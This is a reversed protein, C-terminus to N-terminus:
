DIPLRCLTCVSDCYLFETLWNASPNSILDELPKEQEVKKITCFSNKECNHSKSYGGARWRSRSWISLFIFTGRNTQRANKQTQYLSPRVIHLSSLCDRSCLALMHQCAAGISQKKDLKLGSLLCLLWMMLWSIGKVTDGETVYLKVEQLICRLFFSM